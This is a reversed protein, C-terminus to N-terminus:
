DLLCHRRMMLWGVQGQLLHGQDVVPVLAMLDELVLAVAAVELAASRVQHRSGPVVLRLQVQVLEVVLTSVLETWAEMVLPKLVALHFEGVLLRFAPVKLEDVLHEVFGLGALNAGTGDLGSLTGAPVLDM